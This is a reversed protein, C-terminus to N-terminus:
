NSIKSLFIRKFSKMCLDLIISIIFRTTTFMTISLIFSKILYGFSFANIISLLLIDFCITILLINISLNLSKLKNQNSMIAMYVVPIIIMSASSILIFIFDSLGMASGKITQLYVYYFIVNAIGLYKFYIHISKKLTNIM